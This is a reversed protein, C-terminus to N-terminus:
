TKRIVRLTQNSHKLSDSFLMQFFILMPEKEGFVYIKKRFRWDSTLDFRFPAKVCEVNLFTLLLNLFQRKPFLTGHTRSFITEFHLSWCVISVVTWGLGFVMHSFLWVNNEHKRFVFSTRFIWNKILSAQFPPKANGFKFSCWIFNNPRAPFRM